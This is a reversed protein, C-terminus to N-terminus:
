LMLNFLTGKIANQISTLVRQRNIKKGGLLYMKKLCVSFFLSISFYVARQVTVNLTIGTIVSACSLWHLDNLFYESTMGRLVFM